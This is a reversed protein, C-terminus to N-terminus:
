KKKKRWVPPMNGQVHLPNRYGTETDLIGQGVGGLEVGSVSPGAGAAGARSM